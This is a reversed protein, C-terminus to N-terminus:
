GRLFRNYISNETEEVYPYDLKKLFQDFAIRDDNPVQIGALVKGLDVSNESYILLYLIQDASVEVMIGIISCLSIGARTYVWFFNASPVLGKQFLQFRTDSLFYRVFLIDDLGFRFVRENDVRHCGGIMYRVHSKAMEDDSIDFAQM